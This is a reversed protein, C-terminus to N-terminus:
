RERGPTESAEKNLYVKGDSGIVLDGGQLDRALDAIDRETQPPLHVGWIVASGEPVGPTLGLAQVYATPVTEPTMEHYQAPFADATFGPQGAPLSLRWAQKDVIGYVSVIGRAVLLELVGSSAFRLTFGEKAARPTSAPTPAVPEDAVAPQRGSPPADVPAQARNPQKEQKALRQEMLALSNSKQNLTRRVQDLESRKQQLQRTLDQLESKRHDRERRMRSAQDEATRLRERTLALDRTASQNQERTDRIQESLRGMEKRLGARREREHADEPQEAESVPKKQPEDTTRVPVSQVLAFIAALCLGLIAMFRMVDTNLSETDATRSASAAPQTTRPIM